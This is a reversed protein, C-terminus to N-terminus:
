LSEELEKVIRTRDTRSLHITVKVSGTPDEFTLLGGGQEIREIKFTTIDLQTREELEVFRNDRQRRTVTIRM